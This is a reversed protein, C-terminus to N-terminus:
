ESENNYGGEKNTEVPQKDGFRRRFDELIEESAKKLAVGADEDSMLPVVGPMALREEMNKKNRLVREKATKDYIIFADFKYAMHQTGRYHGEEKRYCTIAFNDIVGTFNSAISLLDYIEVDGIIAGNRMRINTMMGMTNNVTVDVGVGPKHLYQYIVPVSMNDQKVLYLLADRVEKQMFSLQEKSRIVIASLKM